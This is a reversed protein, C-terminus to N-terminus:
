VVIATLDICSEAGGELRERALHDEDVGASQTLDVVRGFKEGFDTARDPRQVRYLIRAGGSTFRHRERWPSPGSQPLARLEEELGEGVAPPVGGQQRVAPSDDGAHGIAVLHPLQLEARGIAKAAAQAFRPMEAPQEIGDLPEGYRWVPLRM